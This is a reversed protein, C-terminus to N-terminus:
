SEDSHYKSCKDLDRLFYDKVYDYGAILIDNTVFNAIGMRCHTLTKAAYTSNEKCDQFMYYVTRLTDMQESTVKKANKIDHLTSIYKALHAKLESENCM